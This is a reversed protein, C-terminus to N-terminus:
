AAETKSFSEPCQPPSDEGAREVEQGVRTEMGWGGRRVLGAVNRSVVMGRKYVRGGSHWTALPWTPFKLVLQATSLQPSEPFMMDIRSAAASQAM